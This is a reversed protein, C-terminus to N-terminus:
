EGAALHNAIAGLRKGITSPPRQWREAAVSPHDNAVGGAEQIGRAQFANMQGDFTAHQRSLGCEFRQHIGVQRRCRRRSNKGLKLATDFAAPNVILHPPYAVEVLSELIAHDSAYEVGRELLNEVAARAVARGRM